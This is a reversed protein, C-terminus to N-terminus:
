TLLLQCFQIMLTLMNNHRPGISTLLLVSGYTYLSLLSKGQSIHRACARSFRAMNDMTSTEKGGEKRSVWDYPSTVDPSPVHSVVCAYYPTM